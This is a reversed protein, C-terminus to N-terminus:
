LYGDIRMRVMEKILSYAAKRCDEANAKTYTNDKFYRREPHDGFLISPLKMKSLKLGCSPELITLLEMDALLMMQLNYLLIEGFYSYQKKYKGIEEPDSMKISRAKEMIIKLACEAAFGQMCVADDYEEQEELIAGGIWHRIAAEYFNEAAM